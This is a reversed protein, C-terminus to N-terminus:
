ELAQARAQAALSRIATLLDAKAVDRKMAVAFYYPARWDTVGVVRQAELAGDVLREIEAVDGSAAAEPQPLPNPLSVSPWPLPDSVGEADSLYDLAQQVAPHEFVGFHDALSGVIQYAVAQKYASGNEGEAQLAIDTLVDGTVERIQPTPGDEPKRVNAWPVPGAEGEPQTSRSALAIQDRVFNVCALIFSANADRAPQTRSGIGAIKRDWEYPFPNAKNARLAINGDDLGHDDLWWPGPTAKASLEALEDPVGVVATFDPRTPTDTM